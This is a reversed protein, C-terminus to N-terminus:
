PALISLATLECEEMEDSALDRLRVVPSVM